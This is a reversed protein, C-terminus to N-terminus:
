HEEHDSEGSSSAGDFLHRVIDPKSAEAIIDKIHAPTTYPSGVRCDIYRSDLKCDCFENTQWFSCECFATSPNIVGSHHGRPSNGYSTNIPSHGRRPQAPTRFFAPSPTYNGDPLDLIQDPNLGDLQILSVPSTPPTPTSPVRIPSPSTRPTPTPSSSLSVTPSTRLEITDNLNVAQTQEENENPQSPLIAVDPLIAVPSNAVVVDPLNVVTTAPVQAPRAPRPPWLTFKDATSYGCQSRCAMKLQRRVNRDASLNLRHLRAHTCRRYEIEPEPEPTAMMAMNLRSTSLAPTVLQPITPQLLPGRFPLPPAIRRIPSPVNVSRIALGRRTPVRAETEPRPMDLRGVFNLHAQVERQQLDYALQVTATESALAAEAATLKQCTETLNASLVDLVLMLDTYDNSNTQCKSQVNSAADFASQIRDRIRTLRSVDAELVSLATPFFRGPSPIAHLDTYLPRPLGAHRPQLSVVHPPTQFRPDPLKKKLQQSLGGRKNPMKVLSFIIEIVTLM